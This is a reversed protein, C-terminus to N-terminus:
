MGLGDEVVVKAGEVVVAGTRCHGGGSVLGGDGYGDVLAVNNKDM